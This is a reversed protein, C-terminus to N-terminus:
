LACKRRRRGLAAASGFIVLLASSSEPIVAVVEGTPLIMAGYTGTQSVGNIKPDVFSIKEVQSALLGQSNTGFVVRNDVGNVGGSSQGSWNLIALTSSWVSASSDAFFIANGVTVLDLQNAGTITLSGLTETTGRAILTANNLHLTASNNIVNGAMLELTASTVSIQTSSNIGGAGIQLRGGNVTTAGTYTNTGNLTLTGAGTKNLGASSSLGNTVSVNAGITLNAGGGGINFTRIVPGVNTASLEVITGTTGSTASDRIISSAFTGTTTVDGDLSLRSGTNEGSGGRLVINNTSNTGALTLGGAGVKVVSQTATGYVIFGNESGANNATGTGTIRSMDEVTLSGASFSIGSAMFSIAGSGGTFSAAGTVTFNSLANLNFVGTGSVTLSGVTEILARGGNVAGAVSTNFGGATVTVAATDAIQNDAGFRLVGGNTVINGAVANVDTKSLTLVGASVTTPGTYTNAETGSLTLASTTSNQIVGTVNNGIVASITTTGAGSGSNTISGTNNVSGGSVNSLTIGGTSNAQLVLNQGGTIGGTFSFLGTGTSVLTRNTATLALSSVIVFPSAGAQSIGTVNPGLIDITTTGLGTGVSTVTGTNNVATTMFRMGGAASGTTSLLLNNTGTVGGSFTNQSGTNPSAITLKATVGSSLVIPNVVVSTSTLNGILTADLNTASDGITITGAGFAAVNSNGLVSGAKIWIGGTFTNAGSLRLQSNVSDQIVRTVNTGIVGSITTTGTGSGSNTLTGTHNVVGSITLTRAGNVNLALNASGSIAGSVTLTQASTGALNWAQNAGLAIQSSVTHNGSAAEVTLGGSGITLLNRGGITQATTADATFNLSRVSFNQNLTSTPNANGSATFYVDTTADPLIDTAGTGNANEAFNTKGGNITNWQSSESGTWYAKSTSSVNALAVNLLIESATNSLTLSAVKGAPSNPVAGIQLGAAGTLTSFGVLSYTGAGIETGAIQSFNFVAGGANITFTDTIIKDSVGPNGLDFNLNSFNTGTGGVTLSGGTLTLTNVAGDALSLTGRSGSSNITVNAATTGITHNGAINLTGGNNVTVVNGATSGGALTLIASGGVTTTGTYTNSGSLVISGGTISLARSGGAESIAGSITAKISTGTSSISADGGLTVGGSIKGGDVDFRIAGRGGAGTGTISFNKTFEDSTALVLSVDTGVTINGLSNLSAGTMAEVFLGTTSASSLTLNGTWTNTGYLRLMALTSGVETTSRIISIDNGSLTSHIEHRRNTDTSTGGAVEITSGNALAIEGGTLIYGFGSTRTNFFLGSANVTGSVTVTRSTSTAPGAGASTGFHAIHGGANDWNVNASGTWWNAIGTSWTGTAQQTGTDSGNSDWYWTAAQATTALLPLALLRATCSSFNAFSLPAPSFIRRLIPRM